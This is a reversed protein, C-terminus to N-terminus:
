LTNRRNLRLNLIICTGGSPSQESSVSAGLLQARRKLSSPVPEQSSGDMGQGNDTITLRIEEPQAILQTSAKTAGSHRVIDTLCEKYFLFLDVRKRPKLRVLIEQGSIEIEHEIDAM